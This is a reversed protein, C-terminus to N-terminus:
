GDMRSQASRRSWIRGAGWFAALVLIALPLFGGVFVIIGNITNVFAFGAQELARLFGWDRTLAVQVGPEFAYVTLTAFDAHEELYRLRGELQEIEMQISSLVNRVQLIEEVKTARALLERLSQEQARANKLRSELDVFEETVDQSSVSRAKVEGLGGAAELVEPLRESPVRLSVSGSRPADREDSASTESSVLYGGFRLPLETLRAFVTAFEGDPVEVQMEANSIVKRGLFSQELTAPLPEAGATAAQDAASGAAVSATAMNADAAEGEPGGLNRADESPEVAPTEVSPSSSLNGEKVALSEASEDLGGGFLRGASDGYGALALFAVAGLLLLLAPLRGGGTGLSKAYAKIRRM